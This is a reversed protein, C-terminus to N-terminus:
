DTNAIGTKAYVIGLIAHFALSVWLTIEILLLHPVQTNIWAVEEQFYAIGRDAFPAEHMGERLAAGGWVVSSNTLLHAILFVGIPVIGTLSHLRRLLFHNKEIFSPM